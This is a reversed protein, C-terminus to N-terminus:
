WAIALGEDRPESVARLLGSRLDHEVAYVQSYSTPSSLTFGSSQFRALEQPTFGNREPFLKDPEFHHHIRPAFLSDRLSLNRKLRNLIVQSVGTVIQPGGAAGVALIPQGNELVITPSMNSLPRRKPLPLNSRNKGDLSFDSMQDNLLIGTGPVGIAAGFFYNQSITSTVANGDSDILSLHTTDPSEIKSGAPHPQLKDMDLKKMPDTSSFDPDCIELYRQSFSKRFTTALKVLYQEDNATPEMAKLIQLVQIGGSSPPPATIVVKQLVSVSLPEREKSQYTKLDDLTLVGHKTQVTDVVKKAIDGQYFGAPGKEAILQLTRSLDNQVLTDGVKLPQGSNFLLGSLYDDKKLGDKRIEIKEALSPYVTFGTRALNVAPQITQAWGKPGKLEGYKSQIAYLGNVFGPTAVLLGNGDKELNGKYLEPSVGSPATERFDIFVDRPQPKSLHILMFGGGAISVSHPREVTLCFATAVSADVINGGQKLVARGCESAHTGGSSIAVNKGTAECCAATRNWKKFDLHDYASRPNSSTTVCATMLISVFLIFKANFRNITSM